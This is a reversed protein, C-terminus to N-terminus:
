SGQYVARINEFEGRELASRNCFFYICGDAFVGDVQLLLAEDDTMENAQVWNPQGLFVTPHHGFDPGHRQPIGDVISVKQSKFQNDTQQAIWEVAQNTREVHESPVEIDDFNM